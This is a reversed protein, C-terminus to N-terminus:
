GAPDLVRQPPMWRAGAALEAYLRPAEDFPVAPAVLRDLGREELLACGLGWRRATTWRDRRRAAVAAVQSSRITVRNPHFTGGLPLAAHRGGYWSAVVVRAEPGASGVLAALASPAASCEVLVDAEGAASADVGGAIGTAGFASALAAREADPDFAIVEAAGARRALWAVLLGIVGLGTVVVRDGLGVDADWVVNIATELSPALVLRAAPPGSPLPRLASSAVVFRDQHPHLAFVREGRRAGLVGPGLADIVGVAAYGYAIPLEFGGRMSPLAMVGRAEPPVEARLVLRETGASIGTCLARVLVEGDGPAALPEDRVAAIGPREFWVARARV